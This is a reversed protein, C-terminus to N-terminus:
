NRNGEDLLMPLLFLSKGKGQTNETAALLYILRPQLWDPEKRIQDLKRMIEHNGIKNKGLLRQILNLSSNLQNTYLEVRSPHVEPLVQRVEQWNVIRAEPKKFAFVNPRQGSQKDKVYLEAGAWCVTGEHPVRELVVSQSLRTDGYDGKNTKLVELANLNKIVNRLAKRKPRDPDYLREMTRQDFEGELTIESLTMLARFDVRLAPEIFYLLVLGFLGKAIHNINGTTPRIIIRNLKEIELLSKAAAALQNPSLESGM